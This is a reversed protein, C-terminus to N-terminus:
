NNKSYSRYTFEENSQVSKDSRFTTTNDSPRLVWCMLNTPDDKNIRLNFGDCGPEDDCHQKCHDITVSKGLGWVPSWIPDTGNELFQNDHETYGGVNGDDDDNGDDNDNGDDDDNEDDDTNFIKQADEPSLLGLPDKKKMVFVYVAWAIVVLLVIAIVESM